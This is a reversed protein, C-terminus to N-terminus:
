IQSLANPSQAVQGSPLKKPVKRQVENRKEKNIAALRKLSCLQYVFTLAGFLIGKSEELILEGTTNKMEVINERRKVERVAKCLVRSTFWNCHDLIFAGPSRQFGFIIGKPGEIILKGTTNKM